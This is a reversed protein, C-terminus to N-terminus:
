WVEHANIMKANCCKCETNWVDGPEGCNSCEYWHTSGGNNEIVWTAEVAGYGEAKDIWSLIDTWSVLNEDNDEFGYSGQKIQQNVIYRLASKITKEM